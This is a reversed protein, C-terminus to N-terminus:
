LNFNIEMGFYPDQTGKRNMSVGNIEYPAYYSFLRNVFMSVNIQKNRFGKTLKLNVDMTLPTRYNTESSSFQPIVLYDLLTGSAQEVSFPLVNGQEDIYYVPVGNLPQNQRMHYWAFQFSTSFQLDLKPIYTDLFLNTHLQEYKTQPDMNEYFGIYPYPKGNILGDYRGRLYSGLSNGYFTRFWAGNITVRTNILPIRNSSYQFEIGSKDITSGNKQVTYLVNENRIEYPLTTVDPPATITEHNIGSIDYKKYHYLGYQNMSRFGNDMVEKFATVSFRHYGWSLDFRIEKKTNMAPVIAPNQPNFVTTKYNVTRYEPNNHYYNLQQKDLYYSEPYLISLDPFLRQQGWGLTIDIEMKKHAIEFHPVGYQVNVRPDLYIKNNMEFQSPLNFMTNGRLGLVLTFRHDRIQATTEQEAFIAGTSYAPIDKYARNRYTSAPDLPRYIDYVQGEGNNKSYQGDLGLRIQNNITRIKYQFNSILKAFIDIPKGDVKHHALYSGPPFFGNSEGEERTVPLAMAGELQVFKTQTIKDFRQNLTTQLEIGSFFSPARKEFSLNNSFSYFQNDVKYSNQGTPDTDPSSKADDISSTYNLNSTWSWINGNDTIQEKNIRLSGTIRKYNDFNNTPDPKADLYDVGVNFKWNKTTEFGKNLAFLKSYADAKFRAQWKSYGSKKTIKVLGSTLNGYAVSPIGRVIEVKEIQDTGITRMDVGSTINIKSNSDSRINDIFNYTYQLNASSNIQAGDVVFLTGLSSVNYQNSRDNGTERLRITNVGNLYPDKAKGGPLLEMLDAFSSPQLHQMARKDIVSTSTIGKGEKATIVVEELQNIAPALPITLVTKSLFPIKESYSKYGMHMIELLYEGPIVSFLALGQDNTQNFYNGDASKLAITAGFINQKDTNIVRVLVETNPTQASLICSYLLLLFLIKAPSSQSSIKM